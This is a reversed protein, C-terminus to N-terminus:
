PQREADSALGAVVALLLFGLASFALAPVTVIDDITRVSALIEIGPLLTVWFALSIGMFWPWLQALVRRARPALRTRWWTLPAHIRTAVLALVVGIVPPAIGGGILLLAIWTLGLVLAGHRRQVFAISWVLAFLSVLVTLIGTVLLNPILSMAPEGAVVDFFATDPWSEFVVADPARSGQLIEGIGHEIGAIAIVAGFVSVNLKTARNM